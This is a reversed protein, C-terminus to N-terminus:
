PAPTDEAVPEKLVAVIAAAMDAEDSSRYGSWVRRIRRDPGILFTMPVGEIGYALSFHAAAVAEGFGWAAIPMQRSRLFSTTEAALADDDGGSGISVAVLQFRPEDALRGAIRVLGPLERRCPPCWTGWVNFLTVRGTLTPAPAAPDDLSVIPLDGMARGEAPHAPRPVDCGTSLAAAGALAAAISLRRIMEHLLGPM